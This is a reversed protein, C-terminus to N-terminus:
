FILCADLSAAGRACTANLLYQFHSAPNQLECKTDCKAIDKMSAFALIDMTLLSHPGNIQPTEISKLIKSNKLAEAKWHITNQKNQQKNDTTQNNPQDSELCRGVLFAFCFSNITHKNIMNNQKNEGRNSVAQSFNARKKGGRNRPFSCVCSAAYM